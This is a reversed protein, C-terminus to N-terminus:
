FIILSSWSVPIFYFTRAVYGIISLKRFFLLISNNVSKLGRKLPKGLIKYGLCVEIWKRREFQKWCSVEDEGANVSIRLWGKNGPRLSRTTMIRGRQTFILLLQWHQWFLVGFCERYNTSRTSVLRSREKELKERDVIELFFLFILTSYKVSKLEWKLPKGLIRYELCVEIWKCREFWKWCSM